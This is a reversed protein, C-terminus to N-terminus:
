RCRSQRTGCDISDDEQSKLLNGPQVKLTVELRWQSATQWRPLGNGCLHEWGHCHIYFHLTGPTLWLIQKSLFFCTHNIGYKRECQVGPTWLKAVCTCALAGTPQTGKKLWDIKIWKEIQHTLLEWRMVSSINLTCTRLQDVKCASPNLFSQKRSM